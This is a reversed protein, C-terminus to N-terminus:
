MAVPLLKAVVVSCRCRGGAVRLIAALLQLRGAKDLTLVCVVTRMRQRTVPLLRFRAVLLASRARRARRM